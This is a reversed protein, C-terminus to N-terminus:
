ERPFTAFAWARVPLVLERWATRSFGSEADTKSSFLDDAKELLRRARRQTILNVLRNSRDKEPDVALAANLLREFEARDQAAVAVGMALAVYPGASLGQQLAIARKFHDRARDSSGGMVEPVSDLTIMVEHLAGRAYDEDLVLARDMLARVAPFDAVLEPRDLGLSIAAGWSAGTWYLLPVEDASAPSVARVPEKMLQDSIGRHELELARLCYDRARLYLKLSRERLQKARDYEDAGLLDADTQVFAYSYQTFGSCTALLLGAHKPASALLLEYTKLAFPVADRILEPDDDSSFTDGSASLTNALSNIALRKVSCGAALVCMLLIAFPRAGGRNKSSRLCLM